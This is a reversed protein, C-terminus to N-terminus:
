QVSRPSEFTITHKEADLGRVIEGLPKSMVTCPIHEWYFSYKVALFLWPTGEVSLAYSLANFRCVKKRVPACWGACILLAQVPSLLHYPAFASGSIDAKSQYLSVSKM